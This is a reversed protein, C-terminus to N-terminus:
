DITSSSPIKIDPRAINCQAYGSGHEYEDVPLVNKATFATVVVLHSVINRQWAPAYGRSSGHEVCAALDRTKGYDMGPFAM